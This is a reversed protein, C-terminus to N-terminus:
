SKKQKAKWKAWRKRQAEAISKRAAASLTRRPRGSNRGIGHGQLAQIAGDISSLEAQVRERERRLQKVAQLLNSM